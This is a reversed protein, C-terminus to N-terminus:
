FIATGLTNPFRQFSLYSAHRLWGGFRFRVPEFHPHRCVTMKGPQARASLTSRVIIDHIRVATARIPKPKVITWNKARMCSRGPTLVARWGAAGFNRPSANIEQPM